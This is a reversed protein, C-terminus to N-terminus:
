HSTPIVVRRTSPAIEVEKIGDIIGKDKAKDPTISKGQRYFAKLERALFGTNERLITTMRQEDNELQSIAEHAQQVSLGGWQGSAVGHFLFTSNPTAFRETGAVFIVNGISDVQGVNHTTVKVPLSRLFNFILIGHNVSGGPTNLLLYLHDIDPSLSSSILQLLNQTNQENILPCDFVACLTKENM